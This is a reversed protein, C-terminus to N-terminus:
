SDNVWQTLYEVTNVLSAPDTHHGLLRALGRLEQGVSFHRWQHIIVIGAHQKGEAMWSAHLRLFDSENRTVVTWGRAAAFALHVEDPSGEIGEERSVHCELGGRRLEEYVARRRSDDDFYLAVPM